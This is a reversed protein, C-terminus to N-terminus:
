RQPSGLPSFSEPLRFALSTPLPSSGSFFRGAVRILILAIRGRILNDFSPVGERECHEYSPMVITQNYHM